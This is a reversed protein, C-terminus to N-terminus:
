PEWRLRLNPNPAANLALPRDVDRWWWAAAAIMAANDTCFARQPIHPTWGEETAVAAIRDRLSSNAAVGGGIAISKVGFARGAVRAKTVLADVVAEQFSAAVDAKGAEEVPRQRLENAVATKLGSFSFDYPRDRIARPFGYAKPNGQAALRDIVPGGPYGLKLLRSVKDYAEGAADDITSGLVEYSTASRMLVLLTHGGSVLLTLLPLEVTADASAELFPSALHGELHNVGLFPVGWTWALAKAASVGVLLAGILGPGITCAVADIGVGSRNLGAQDLTEHVVPVIREVHARGAIEPVVGGFPAHLAIQTSVVSAEIVRGDVVVAAATEDCSTEIGLIRV